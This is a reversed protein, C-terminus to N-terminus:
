FFKDIIYIFLTWPIVSLLFGWRCGKVFNGENVLDIPVSVLDSPVVKVTNM